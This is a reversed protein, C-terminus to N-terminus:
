VMLAAADSVIVLLVEESWVMAAAKISLRKETPESFVWGPLSYSIRATLDFM